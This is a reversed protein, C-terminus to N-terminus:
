ATWYLSVRTRLMPPGLRKLKRALQNAFTYCITEPILTRSVPRRYNYVYAIFSLNNASEGARASCHATLRSETVRRGLPSDESKM